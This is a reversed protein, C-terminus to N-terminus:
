SLNISTWPVLLVFIDMVEVRKFLYSIHYCIIQQFYCPEKIELTKYPTNLSPVATEILHVKRELIAYKTSVIITTTIIDEQNSFFPNALCASNSGWKWCKKLSKILHIGLESYQGYLQKILM